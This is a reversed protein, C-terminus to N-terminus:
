YVGIIKGIEQWSFVRTLNDLDKIYRNWLRDMLLVHIGNNILKFTNQPSDEIITSVNYYKCTEVKDNSFEVFYPIEQFYIDLWKYTECDIWEPRATIFILNNKTVYHYKKVTEVAGDFPLFCCSKIVYNILEDLDVDELGASKSLDPDTIDEFNLNKNYLINVMHIFPTYPNAICGDIDFAIKVITVM